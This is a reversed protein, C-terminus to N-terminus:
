SKQRHHCLAVAAADAEHSSHFIIRPNTNAETVYKIIDEKTARGNGTVKKKITTPAYEFVSVSHKEASFKILGIVELTRINKALTVPSFFPKEIAYVLNFNEQFFLPIEDIYDVFPVYGTTIKYEYPQLFADREPCYGCIGIHQVGPDIGMIMTNMSYPAKSM